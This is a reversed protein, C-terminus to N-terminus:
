SRAERMLRAATFRASQRAAIARRIMRADCSKCAHSCFGGTRHFQCM